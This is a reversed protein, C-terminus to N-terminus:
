RMKNITKHYFSIWYLLSFGLKWCRKWFFIGAARCCNLTRPVMESEASGRANSAVSRVYREKKAFSVLRPFLNWGLFKEKVNKILDDALRKAVHRQTSTVAAPLGVTRWNIYIM